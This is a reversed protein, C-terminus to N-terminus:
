FIHARKCAKTLKKETTSQTKHLWLVERKKLQKIAQAEKQIFKVHGAIQKAGVSTIEKAEKKLESKGGRTPMSEDRRGVPRVM